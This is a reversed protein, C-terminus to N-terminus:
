AGNWEDALRQFDAALSQLMTEVPAKGQPQEPELIAPAKGPRPEPPGDGFLDDIADVSLGPDNALSPKVASTTPPAANGTVVPSGQEGWREVAWNLIRLQLARDKISDLARGITAMAELETGLEDHDDPRGGQGEDDSSVLALNKAM